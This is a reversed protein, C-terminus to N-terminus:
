FDTHEGFLVPEPLPDQKPAQGLPLIVVSMEHVPHKRRRTFIWVLVVACVVVFGAFLYDGQEQILRDLFKTIRTLYFVPHQM